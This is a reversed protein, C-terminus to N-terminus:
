GVEQMAHPDYYDGPGDLFNSLIAGFLKNWDAEGMASSPKSEMAGSEILRKRM